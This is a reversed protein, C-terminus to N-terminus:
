TRNELEWLKMPEYCLPCIPKKTPVDEGCIICGDPTWPKLRSGDTVIREYDRRVVEEVTVFEYYGGCM